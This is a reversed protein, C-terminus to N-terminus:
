IALKAGTVEKVRHWTRTVLPLHGFRLNWLDVESGGASNFTHNVAKFAM